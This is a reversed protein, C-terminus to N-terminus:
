KHFLECSHDSRWCSNTRRAGGRQGEFHEECIDWLARCCSIVTLLPYVSGFIFCTLILFPKESPIQGSHSVSVTFLLGTDTLAPFM